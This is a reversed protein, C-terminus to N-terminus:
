SDSFMQIGCVRLDTPRKGFMIKTVM